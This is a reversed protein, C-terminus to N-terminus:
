PTHLSALISRLEKAQLQGPASAIGAAGFTMDTGSVAGCVRSISGLAGMSITILPCKAYLRNFEESASMLTLVDQPSNPMVAIKVIDAGARQMACLRAILAEKPPTQHFDHSSAVVKVGYRQIQQIHQAMVGDGFEVDVLDACGSAAAALSLRQYEEMTGDFAGGENRTRITFLIPLEGVAERLAKLACVIAAEDTGAGFADARWEVADVPENKISSAQVLLAEETKAAVPVIIKPLGEGICLSRIRICAKMIEEKICTHVGNAPKRRMM